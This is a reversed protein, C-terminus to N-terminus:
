CKLNPKCQKKKNSFLTLNFSFCAFSCTWVGDPRSVWQALLKMM